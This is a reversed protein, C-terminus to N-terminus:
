YAITANNLEPANTIRVTRISKNVAIHVGQPMAVRTSRPTTRVAGLASAGASVRRSDTSFESMSKGQKIMHVM